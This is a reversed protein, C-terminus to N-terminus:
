YFSGTRIGTLLNDTVQTPQGPWNMFLASQLQHGQTKLDAVFRRTLCDPCNPDGCQTKVQQGDKIDRQCGHSGVADLKIEISFTGM